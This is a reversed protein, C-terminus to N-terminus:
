LNKRRRRCTEFGLTWRWFGTRNVPIIYYWVQVYLLRGSSSGDPEFGTSSLTFM